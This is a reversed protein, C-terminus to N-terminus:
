TEARVKVNADPAMTRFVRGLRNATEVPDGDMFRFRNEQFTTM